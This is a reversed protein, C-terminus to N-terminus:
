TILFHPLGDHKCPRNPLFVSPGQITRQISIIEEIIMEQRRNLWEQWKPMQPALSNTIYWGSTQPIQPMATPINIGGTTKTHSESRCKKAMNSIQKQKTKQHSSSFWSIEINVNNKFISSAQHFWVTHKTINPVTAWPLIVIAKFWIRFFWCSFVGRAIDGGWYSIQFCVKCRSVFSCLWDNEIITRANMPLLASSINGVVVKVVCFRVHDSCSDPHHSLAGGGM